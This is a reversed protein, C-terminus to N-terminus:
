RANVSNNNAKRALKCASPSNTLAMRARCFERRGTSVILTQRSSLPVRWKIDV